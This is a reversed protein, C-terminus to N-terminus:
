SLPWIRYKDLLGDIFPLPRSVADGMGDPSSLAQVARTIMWLRIDEPVASADAGFGAIFRVRVSSAAESTAPWEQGLAPILWSSYSEPDLFYTNSPQTQENGGPDRYKVSVISSVNPLRLCIETSPFTDLVLEVTQHILRRGLYGEAYRRLAPIILAIQADFETGDVRGFSKVEAASVPEGAPGHIDVLPM